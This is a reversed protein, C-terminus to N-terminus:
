GNSQTSEQEETVDPVKLGPQNSSVENKKEAQESAVEQLKLMQSQINAFMTKYEEETIGLKQFIITRMTLIDAVMNTVDKQYQERSLFYMLCQNFIHQTNRELMNKTILPTQKM